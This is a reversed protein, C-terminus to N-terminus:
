GEAPKIEARFSGPELDPAATEYAITFSMSWGFTPLDGDGIHTITVPVVVECGQECDTPLTWDFRFGPNGPEAVVVRAEVPGSIAFEVASFPNVRTSMGMRASGDKAREMAGAPVVVVVQRHLPGDAFEPTNNPGVTESPAFATAGPPDCSAAIVVLLCALLWLRSRPRRLGETLYM